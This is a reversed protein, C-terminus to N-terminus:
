RSLLIFVQWACGRREKELKMKNTWVEGLYARNIAQVTAKAQEEDGEDPNNLISLWKGIFETENVPFTM